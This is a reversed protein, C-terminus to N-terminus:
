AKDDKEGSQLLASPEAPAVASPGATPEDSGHSSRGWPLVQLKRTGVHIMWLAGLAVVGAGVLIGPQVHFSDPQVIQPLMGSEELIFPTSNYWAHALMAFLLSRSRWAIWGLILGGIATIPIRLAHLHMFGFLVATLAIPEWPTPITGDSRRKKGDKIDDSVFGSMIYGRFLIEECIGPVFAFFAIMVLFDLSGFIQMTSESFVNPPAGFLDSLSAFLQILLVSVAPMLLVIGLVTFASPIPGIPLVRGWRYRNLAILALAVGAILIVQTMVHARLFEVAREAEPAKLSGSQWTQGIFFFLILSLAFAFLASGSSPSPRPPGPRKWIQWNFEEAERFLIDERYFNSTAWRLALAAYIGTVVVVQVIYGWMEAPLASDGATSIHTMLDRYLLAFNAIPLLGWQWSFKIGPVLSIMALPLAVMMVPTIYYQGEKHSKAFASIALAVAGFLAAAPIMLLFIVPYIYVPIAPFLSVPRSPGAPPPADAATTQPLPHTQTQTQTASLDTTQVAAEAAEAAETAMAAGQAMQNWQDGLYWLTVGLSALNLAAAAVAITSVCLFKGMIIERRDAPSILLTEITGREKEGAMLDIAPTFAATLVLLIILYPIFKAIERVARSGTRVDTSQLDMPALPAVFRTLISRIHDSATDSEDSSGLYLIEPQLRKKNGDILDAEFNDPFVVVVEVTRADLMEIATARRSEATDLRGDGDIDYRHFWRALMATVADASPQGDTAPRAATGAGELRVATEAAECNAAAFESWTVIGDGNADWTKQLPIPVVTVKREAEAVVPIADLDIAPDPIPVRQGLHQPPQFNEIIRSLKPAHEDGIFGVRFDQKRTEQAQSTLLMFMFIFLLPNIIVPLVIAAFLTRRDRLTDRLEKFFVSQINRTNPTM